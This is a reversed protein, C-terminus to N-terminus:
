QRAPVLKGCLPAPKMTEFRSGTPDVRVFIYCANPRGFSESMNLKNPLLGTGVFDDVERLKAIFSDRTPCPGVEELGRVMLDAAIYARIAMSDSPPQLAPAYRAMGDLFIQHAPLNEEFPWYSVFLSEGAMRPGFQALVSQDYGTASLAVKVPAGAAHLEAVIMAFDGPPLMGAITDAGLELFRAVVARPNTFGPTYDFTGVIDVGVGAMSAGMARSVATTAKSIRNEVVLARTGGQARVYRGWTDIGEKDAVVTQATFMNPHDTWAAEAALGSVPVGHDRLYDASGTAATTMEMIGFVQENEVLERAAQKNESPDSADDRWVYTIKRGHIGGAANVIGLRADIGGRAPRMIEASTGTDSYLFGLKVEDPTVGPATSACGAGTGGDEGSTGCGSAVVLVSTIAIVGLTVIGHRRSRVTM